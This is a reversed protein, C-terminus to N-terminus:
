VEEALRRQVADAQNQAAIIRWYAAQHGAAVQYILNNSESDISKARWLAWQIAATAAELPIDTDSSLDEPRVSCEVVVYIDLGAPVPPYVWLTNATTDISYERLQFNRASVSCDRRGLWIVEDSNDRKRLRRIIRGDATSQGLVRRLNSCECIESVSSCPELKVTFREIFIDPRANFVGDIGEQLYDAIQETTWVKHKFDVLDGVVREIMQALTM